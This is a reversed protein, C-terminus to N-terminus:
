HSGCCFVTPSASISATRLRIMAPRPSADAYLAYAADLIWYLIAHWWKRTKPNLDVGGMHDNYEKAILPCLRVVSQRESAALPAARSRVSQAVAFPKWGKRSEVLVWAGMWGNISEAWKGVEKRALGAVLIDAVFRPIWSRRAQANRQLAAVLERAWVDRRWEALGDDVAAIALLVSSVAVLAGETNGVADLLRAAHSVLEESAVASEHAVAGILACVEATPAGQQALKALLAYSTLVEHAGGEAGRGAMAIALLGRVGEPNPARMAARRSGVVVRVVADAVGWEGVAVELKRRSGAATSCAMHVFEGWRRKNYAEVSPVLAAMRGAVARWSADTHKLLGLVNAVALGISRRVKAAPCVLTLAVVEDWGHASTWREVLEARVAASSVAQAVLQEGWLEVLPHGRARALVQSVFRWELGALAAADDENGVEVHSLEWMFGFFGPEFLARFAALRRNESAVEGELAERPGSGDGAPSVSCRRRRRRRRRRRQQQEPQRAETDSEGDSLPEDVPDVARRARKLKNVFAVARVASGLSATPEHRAVVLDGSESDSSGSDTESSSSSSSAYSDTSTESNSSGNDSVSEADATTSPGTASSAAALPATSRYVLIYASASRGDGGFVEDEIENWAVPHVSTDNYESWTGTDSRLYSYYHGADATGAHVVVGTLEYGVLLGDGARPFEFRSSIKVNRMSRMDFEMRKLHLLAYHPLKGVRVRKEADVYGDCRSCFYRNDGTLHEPADMAGLSGALCSQGKIEVSLSYFPETREFSSACVSCEVSHRLEGQFLHPLLHGRRGSADVLGSDLKDFLLNLFENADQQEGLDIVEGTIDRCTRCFGIPDYFRAETGALAAFVRRLAQVHDAAEAQPDVSADLVGERLEPIAFLQQLSANIYCTAGQNVLGVQCGPERRMDSACYDWGRLQSAEALVSQLAGNVFPFAREPDARVLSHLLAFGQARTAPERARARRGFLVGDFVDRLLEVSPQIAALATGIRLWGRLVSEHEIHPEGESLAALVLDVLVGVEHERVFSPDEVLASVLEFFADVQDPVANLTESVLVVDLVVDLVERQVACVSFLGSVMAKRFDASAGRLLLETLTAADLHGVLPTEFALAGLLLASNQVAALGSAGLQEQQAYALLVRVVAGALLEAEVGAAAVVDARFRPLVSRPGAAMLGMSAVPLLCRLSSAVPSRSATSALTVTSLLRLLAGALAWLSAEPETGAMELSLSVLLRLAAPAHGGDLFAETAMHSAQHHLVYAARYAERLAVEWVSEESSEGDVPPILLLLEFAARSVQAGAVTGEDVELLSLLVTVYSPHSFAARLAQRGEDDADDDSGDDDDGFWGHSAASAQDDDVSDDADDSAVSDAKTETKGKESAKALAVGQGTSAAKGERPVVYVTAAGDSLGLADLPTSDALTPLEAAHAVLAFGRKPLRLRTALAARLASLLATRSLSIQLAREAPPLVLCKIVTPPGALGQSRADDDALVTHLAQLVSASGPTAGDVFTLAADAFGRLKKTKSGALSRLHSRLVAIAEKWLPEGAVSSAVVRFLFDARVASGAHAAYLSLASPHHLAASPLPIADLVSRAATERVGDFVALTEEPHAPYFTNWLTLANRANLKKIVGPADLLLRVTDLMLGHSPGNIARLFLTAPTGKPADALAAALAPLSRAHHPPPTASAILGFYTEADAGLAAALGVLSETWQSAPHETALSALLARALGVDVVPALTALLAYSAPSGVRVLAQLPVLQLEGMSALFVFLPSAATLLSAHDHTAALLAPNALFEAATTAPASAEDLVDVLRVLDDIAALRAALPPLPTTAALLPRAAITLRLATLAPVISALEVSELAATDLAALQAAVEAFLPDLAANSAAELAALIGQALAPYYATWFAATFFPAAAVIPKLLLFVVSLSPSSESRLRDVVADFGGIRGWVNLLYIYYVSTAWDAPPLAAYLRHAPDIVADALDEALVDHSGSGSYLGTKPGAPAAPFVYSIALLVGPVDHVLYQRCTPLTVEALRRVSRPVAAPNAPPYSVLAHTTGPLDLQLEM